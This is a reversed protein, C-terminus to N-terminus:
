STSSGSINRSSFNNFFPIERELGESVNLAEWIYVPRSFTTWCNLLTKVLLIITLAIKENRHKRWLTSHIDVLGGRRDMPMTSMCEVYLKKNNDSLTRWFDVERLWEGASTPMAPAIQDSAQTAAVRSVCVIHLIFGHITLCVAKQLASARLSSSRPRPDLPTQRKM